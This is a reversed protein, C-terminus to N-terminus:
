RGVRLWVEGDIESQLADPVGVAVTAHVGRGGEYGRTGPSKNSGVQYGNKEQAEPKTHMDEFVSDATSEMVLGRVPRPPPLSPFNLRYHEDSQACEIKSEPPETVQM